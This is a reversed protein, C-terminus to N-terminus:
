PITRVISSNPNKRNTASALSKKEEGFGGSGEPDWENEGSSYSILRQSATLRLYDLFEGCEIFGKHECSGEM